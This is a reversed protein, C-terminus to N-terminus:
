SPSAPIPPHPPAAPALMPVPSPQSPPVALKATTRPPRPASPPFRIIGPDEPRDAENPGAPNSQVAASSASSAPTSEYIPSGADSNELTSSAGQEDLLAGSGFGGAAGAM